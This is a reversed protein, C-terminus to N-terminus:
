VQAILSVLASTGNLIECSQLVFVVFFQRTKLLTCCLISNLPRIVPNLQWELRLNCGNYVLHMRQKLHLVERDAGRVRM